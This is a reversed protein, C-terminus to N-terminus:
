GGKGLGGGGALGVRFLGAWVVCVRAQAVGARGVTVVTGVAVRSPLGWGGVGLGCDGTTHRATVALRLARSCPESMLGPM